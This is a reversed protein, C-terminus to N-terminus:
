TSAGDMGHVAAIFAELLLGHREPHSRIIPHTLVTSRLYELGMSAYRLPQLLARVDDASPPPSQASIWAVVAEFVSEENKKGIAGDTALSLILQPSIRDRICMESGM